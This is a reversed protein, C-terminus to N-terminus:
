EYFDEYLDFDEDQTSEASQSIAGSQALAFRRRDLASLRLQSYGDASEYLVDDIIGSFEYRTNVLDTAKAASVAYSEPIDVLQGVPDIVWDVIMGLGDRETTAGYLPLVMYNGETVGWRALTEGFDADREELGIKTAVDFLGAVGVTANLAFRATNHAADILSLQLIDNVVAGPISLTDAVNSLGSRVPSPVVTGYANSVPKLVAKDVAVNFEHTRRNTEEYPDRVGTNDGPGACGLLFSTSIIAFLYKRTTKNM